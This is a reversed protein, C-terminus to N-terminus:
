SFKKKWIAEALAIRIKQYKFINPELRIQYTLRQWASFNRPLKDSASNGIENILNHCFVFHWIGGKLLCENANVSETTDFSFIQPM